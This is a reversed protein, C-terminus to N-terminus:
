QNEAPTAMAVFRSDQQLNAFEMEYPALALSAGLRNAHELLALANESEGCAALIQAGSYAEDAALERSGEARGVIGIAAPCRGLKALLLGRQLVLTADDPSVELQEEALRLARDYSWRADEIKGEALLVDGLNRHFTASRPALRLALRYHTEAESYNGSYFHATGINSALMADRIPRPIRRYAAIAARFNADLLELTALNQLPWSLEPPALGAAREYATRAEQHEGVRLLVNGLENWHSWYDPRIVLAERISREAAALDGAAL